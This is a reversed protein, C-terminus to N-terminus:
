AERELKPALYFNVILLQIVVAAPVALVIGALGGLRYGVALSLIVLLPRLNLSRRFLVPAVFTGVLHVLVYLALATLLATGPSVLFAVAIPPIMGLYPGILPIISFLGLLVGLLLAYPVHLILLLLICLLALIASLLAQAAVYIALRRIIEPLQADIRTATAPPFFLLIARKLEPADLVLFATLVLIFVLHGASELAALVLQLGRLASAQLTQGLNGAQQLFTSVLPLQASGESLRAFADPLTRILHEGQSILIPLLAVLLLSLGGLGFVALAIVTYLRSIGYREALAVVPALAAALLLAVMFVLLLDRLLFALWLVGVVAVTILTKLFFRRLEQRETM